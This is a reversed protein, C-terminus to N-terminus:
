INVVIVIYYDYPLFFLCKPSYLNLLDLTLGKQLIEAIGLLLPHLLILTATTLGFFVHLKFINFPAFLRTLPSMFLGLMIQLWLCTFALLGLLPFLLRLNAELSLSNGLLSGNTQLWVLLPTFLASLVLLGIIIKILLKM